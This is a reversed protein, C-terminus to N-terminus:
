LYEEVFCRYVKFEGDEIILYEGSTGLADILWFKEKEENYSLPKIKTVTTHGVVFKYKRVHDVMLSRPRVWIPSQTINDGYPDFGYFGFKRPQNKFLQNIQDILFFHPDDKTVQPVVDDNHNLHNMNILEVEFGMQKLVTMMQKQMQEKRIM